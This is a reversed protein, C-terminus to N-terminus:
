VPRVHDFRPNRAFVEHREGGARMEATIAREIRGLTEADEIIQPAIAQPIVVIGDCDALVYDMPSVTLTGGLLSPMAVPVDKATLRWRRAANNPVVQACHCPMGYGRIEDADRVAGSTVIARCGARQVSYAMFGGLVAGTTFGGTEIFLITGPACVSELTDAPMAKGPNAARLTPAGQLCAARGAVVKHPGIPAISPALAHNPVGAEDMVDSVLGTELRGLRELWDEANQSM